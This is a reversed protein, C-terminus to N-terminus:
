SGVQSGSTRGTHRQNFESGATVIGASGRDSLMVNVNLPRKNIGGIENAVGNVAAVVEANNTRTTDAAQQRNFNAVRQGTVSSNLQIFGGTAVGASAASGNKGIQKISRAAAMLRATIAAMQAGAAVAKVPFPIGKMAMISQYASIGSAIAEAAAQAFLFKKSEELGKEGEKASLTNLSGFLDSVAGLTERHIGLIASKKAEQIRKIKDATEAQIAVEEAALSRLEANASKKDILENDLLIGLERRRNEVEKVQNEGAVRVQETEFAFPDLDGVKARVNMAKEELGFMVASTESKMAALIAREREKARQRAMQADETIKKDNEKLIKDRAKETEQLILSQEKADILKMLDERKGFEEIMAAREKKANLRIQAIVKPLGEEMADIRFQIAADEISKVKKKKDSKTNPDDDEFIPLGISARLIQNSFALKDRNKLRELAEGVKAMEENAKKIDGTGTRYADAMERTEQSVQNTAVMTARGTNSLAQMSQNVEDAAKKAAQLSFGFKDAFEKNAKLVNREAEEFKETVEALFFGVDEDAISAIADKIGSKELKAIEKNFEAQAETILGLKVKVTDLVGALKDYSLTFATILSIIFPLAMPGSVLPMFTAKLASGMSGTQQRLRALSEAMQELNNAIGFMGFPADQIIRVVNQSALSTKIASKANAEQARALEMMGRAAAKAKGADLINASNSRQLANAVRNANGAIVGMANQAEKFDIENSAKKMLGSLDQWKTKLGEFNKTMLKSMEGGQDMASEVAATLQQQLEELNEFQLKVQSVFENSDAM